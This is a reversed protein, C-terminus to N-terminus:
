LGPLPVDQDLQKITLEDFRLFGDPHADAALKPVFVMWLSENPNARKDVHFRAFTAQGGKIAARCPFSIAPL